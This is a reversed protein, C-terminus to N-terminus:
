WIRSVEARSGKRGAAGASFYSDEGHACLAHTFASSRHKLVVRGGAGNIEDLLERRSEDSFSDGVYIVTGSGHLFGRAPGGEEEQEEVEEIDEAEDEDGHGEDDEEEEEEEKGEEEQEQATKSVKTAEAGRRGRGARAAAPAPGVAFLAEDARAGGEVCEAVFEPSVTHIGHRRAFGYKSGSPERLVLHTCRRDLTSTGEGGHEQVFAFIAARAPGVIQATCVVTGALAGSPTSRQTERSKMYKATAAPAVDQCKEYVWGVDRAYRGRVSEGTAAQYIARLPDLDEKDLAAEM